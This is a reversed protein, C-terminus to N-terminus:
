LPRQQRYRLGNMSASVLLTELELFQIGNDGNLADNLATAGWILRTGPIKVFPKTGPVGPQAVM